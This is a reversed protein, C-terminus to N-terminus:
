RGDTVEGQRQVSSTHLPVSRPSGQCFVVSDGVRYYHAEHVRLAGCYLLPHTPKKKHLGVIYGFMWFVALGLMWEVLLRYNM